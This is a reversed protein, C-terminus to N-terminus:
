ESKAIEATLRDIFAAGATVGARGGALAHAIEYAELLLDERDEPAARNLAPWFDREAGIRDGAAFRAMALRCTQRPSTQPDRRLGEEYAGISDAYRGALFL